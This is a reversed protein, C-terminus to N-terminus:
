AMVVSSSGDWPQLLTNLAAFEFNGFLDGQVTGNAWAYWADIRNGLKGEFDATNSAFVLPIILSGGQLAPNMPTFPAGTLVGFYGEGGGGVGVNTGGIRALQCNVAGLLATTAQMSGGAQGPQTWVNSSNQGGVVFTTWNFSANVTSNCSELFFEKALVGARFIWLRMMKKDSTCLLHYVRDASATANIITIGTALVSEDTATPRQNATGAPVYLAGNSFAIHAVDDTTGSYSLLLQVGNGDVLVAFSSATTGGVNGRTTCDAKTLWRDTTDGSSTPGTVGNCTYKITWGMTTVLYTKWEFLLTAMTDNLSVFSIRQNIRAFNWTKVPTPLAM